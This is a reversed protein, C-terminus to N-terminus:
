EPVMITRGPILRRPEIGPNAREIAAVSTDYRQAIAELTEGGEIVHRRVEGEAEATGSVPTVEGEVSDAASATPAGGARAGENSPAASLSPAAVRSFAALRAGIADEVRKARWTSPVNNSIISFALREGNAARVYGSLASVHDITGTKARLNGEAGTQYMRRLGRSSGAEPLTEWYLEWMPSNAMYALLDVMTAPSVQNLVSLGSGDIVRLALPGTGMECLLLDQIARAGGDASGDGLGMRGVTRLVSEAYMNHSRQNVVDLIELMPPSRHVALVQPVVGDEHRPAFVRRGTIPSAASDHISGVGGRVEIGRRLLVERFVAASYRAPDAVPVGRWVAGSGSAIQGRIVIPGDYAARNVDLRTPGGAVTTAQNVIAIGEGGPVLQVRPRWGPEEGPLIRLTVINENFSLAGALAAYWADMYSEQWGIGAGSGAFYSGDGVVSGEIVTVGLAALSDALAEWAATKSEYFRDSISPDGTGYILLDGHIIGAEIPGTAAVFTSYRYGAGTYYLAAASTFLKMNSAPALMADANHAFITDGRDLSVVLVGWRDGRWGPSQILRELDSRVQMLESSADRSSAPSQFAEAPAACLPVLVIFAITRLPM